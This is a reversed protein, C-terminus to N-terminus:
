RLGGGRRMRLALAFSRRLHSASDSAVLGLDDAFVGAAVDAAVEASTYICRVVLEYSCRGSAAMGQADKTSGAGGSSSRGWPKTWGCVRALNHACLARSPPRASGPPRGARGLRQQCIGRLRQCGGVGCLSVGILYIGAVREMQPRGVSACERGQAARQRRWRPREQPSGKGAVGGSSDGSWRSSVRRSRMARRHLGLRCRLTPPCAARRHNADGKPFAAGWRERTPYPARAGAAPRGAPGACPSATPQPLASDRLAPAASARCRAPAFETHGM